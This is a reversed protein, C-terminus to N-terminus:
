EAPSAPSSQKRRRLLGLVLLAPVLLLASAPEPVTGGRIPTTGILNWNISENGDEGFVSNNVFDWGGTDLIHGTDNFSFPTSDAMFSVVPIAANCASLQAATMFSTPSSCGGILNTNGNGDANNPELNAPPFAGFIGFDSTDFQTDNFNNQAFIGSDGVPITLPTWLTYTRSVNPFFVQFNTITLPTPGNNDIRIAGSDFTQASPSQSVIDPAGLWPSPFFGSPRLNDAYGVFVSITGAQATLCALLALAIFGACKSKM